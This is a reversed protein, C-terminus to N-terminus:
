KVGSVPGIYKSSLTLTAVIKFHFHLSDDLFIDTRYVKLLQYPSVLFSFNYSCIYGKYIQM